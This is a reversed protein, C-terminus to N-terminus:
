FHSLLRADMRRWAWFGAVLVAAAFGGLLWPAAVRSAESFDLAADLVVAVLAAAGVIGVLTVVFGAALWGALRTRLHRLVTSNM